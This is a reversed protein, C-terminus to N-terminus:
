TQATATAATVDPHVALIQDAGTLELMRMLRGSPAVIRLEVLRRVRMLMNLCSSDAFTVRTADLVLLDHVAAAATLAAELPELTEMDVDGHAEVVWSPGSAYQRGLPGAAPAPINADEM